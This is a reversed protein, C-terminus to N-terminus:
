ATENTNVEDNKEDNLVLYCMFDIKSLVESYTDLTIQMSNQMSERIVDISKLMDKKSNKNM